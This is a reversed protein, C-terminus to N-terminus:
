LLIQKNQATMQISSSAQQRYLSDSVVSQLATSPKLTGINFCHRLFSMDELSRLCRKSRQVAAYRRSIWRVTPRVDKTYFSWTPALLLASAQLSEDSCVAVLSDCGSKHPPPESPIETPSSLAPSFALRLLLETLRCSSRGAASSTKLTDSSLSSSLLLPSAPLRDLDRKSTTVTLPLSHSSLPGSREATRAPPAWPRLPSASSVSSALALSLAPPTLGSSCCAQKQRGTSALSSHRSPYSRM